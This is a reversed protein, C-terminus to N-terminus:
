RKEGLLLTLFQTLPDRSQHIAINKNIRNHNIASLFAAQKLLATSKFYYTVYAAVTHAINRGM